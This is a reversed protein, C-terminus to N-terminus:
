PIALVRADQSGDDPCGAWTVAGTADRTTYCGRQGTQADWAPDPQAAAPGVYGAPFPAPLYAEGPGLRAPNPTPLTLGDWAEGTGAVVTAVFAAHEVPCRAAFTALTDTERMAACDPAPAAPPPPLGGALQAVPAAAAPDAPAPAAAPACVDRALGAVTAPDVAIDATRFWVFAGGELEIQVIDTRDGCRAWISRMAPWTDFTVLEGDPSWWGTLAPAAPFAPAAPADTPQMVASPGPAPAPATALQSSFAITGLILILALGVAGGAVQLQQRTPRITARRIPAPEAPPASAEWDWPAPPPADPLDELHPASREGHAFRELDRTAASAQGRRPLYRVASVIRPPAAARPQRRTM